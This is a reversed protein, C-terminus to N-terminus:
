ATKANREALYQRITGEDMGGPLPPRNNKENDKKKNRKKAAAFISCDGLLLSAVLLTHVVPAMKICLNYNM